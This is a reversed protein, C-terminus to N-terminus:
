DLQPARARFDFVGIAVTIHVSSAATSNRCLGSLSRLLWFIVASTEASSCMFRRSEEINIPESNDLVGANLLKLQLQRFQEKREGVVVFVV